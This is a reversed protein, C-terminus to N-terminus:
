EEPFSPRTSAEKKIFVEWETREYIKLDPKRDNERINDRLV